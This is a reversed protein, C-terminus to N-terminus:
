CHSGGLVRTSVEVGIFQLTDTRVRDTVIISIWQYCKGKCM